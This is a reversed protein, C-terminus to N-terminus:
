LAAFQELEERIRAIQREVDDLVHGDIVGQPDRSITELDVLQQLLNDAGTPGVTGKMAHIGFTLQARDGRILAERMNSLKEVTDRKFIDVLLMFTIRDGGVNQLLADPRCHRYESDSM